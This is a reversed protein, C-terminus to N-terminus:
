PNGHAAWAVSSGRVLVGGRCALLQIGILLVSGSGPRPTCVRGRCRVKIGEKKVGPFLNQVCM